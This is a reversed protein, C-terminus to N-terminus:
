NKLMKSAVIDLLLKHRVMHIFLLINKAWPGLHENLQGSREPRIRGNGGGNKEGDERIM